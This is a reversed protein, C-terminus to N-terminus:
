NNTEGAGVIICAGTNPNFLGGGCLPRLEFEAHRGGSLDLRLKGETFRKPTRIELTAVPGTPLTGPVGALTCHEHHCEAAWGRVFTKLRRLTFGPPLHATFTIPRHESQNVLVLLVTAGPAVARPGEITIQALSM